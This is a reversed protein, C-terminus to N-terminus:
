LIEKGHFNAHRTSTLKEGTKIRFVVCSRVHIKESFPPFRICVYVFMLVCVCVCVCVVCESAHVHM